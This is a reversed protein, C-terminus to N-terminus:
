STQSGDLSAIGDFAYGLDINSLWAPRVGNKVLTDVIRFPNGLDAWGSTDRIVLLREPHRALVDRSFDLSPVEHYADELQSHASASIRRVVAPVATRLLDHFASLHGVTVFTNWLCGRHLLEEAHQRTPKEWFRSVGWVPPRLSDPIRAGPEIWGYETEPQDAQAGLLIISDPSLFARNIADELTALFVRDDSYYHDCPLFAVIGDHGRLRLEHVAWLIGVATGKNEPQSLIRSGDVDRLDDRYYQEHAKNVLFVAREAPFIPSVRQLTQRLLSGTGHINCFQKPRSAGSIRLTLNQLRTGDGGALLVACSRQLGSNMTVKPSIM